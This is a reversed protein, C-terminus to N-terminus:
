GSTEKQCTKNRFDAGLNTHTNVTMRQHREGRLLPPM